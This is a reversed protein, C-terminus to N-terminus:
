LRILSKYARKVFLNIPGQGGKGDGGAEGGKLLLVEEWAICSCCSTLITSNPLNLGLFPFSAILGFQFPIPWAHGM